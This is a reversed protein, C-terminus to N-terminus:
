VSTFCRGGRFGSARCGDNPVSLIISVGFAGGEPRADAGGEGNVDTAALFEIGGDELAKQVARLSHVRVDIEGSELRYLTTRGM